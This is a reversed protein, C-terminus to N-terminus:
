LKDKYKIHHAALLAKLRKNEAKVKECRDALRDITKNANQWEQKCLMAEARYEHKKKSEAMLLTDAHLYELIAGAAADIATGLEAPDIDASQMDCYGRRYLNHRTLVELANQLESRREDDIM